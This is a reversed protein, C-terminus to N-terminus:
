TLSLLSAMLAALILAAGAISMVLERHILGSQLTRVQAGLALSARVLAFILGDIGREDSKRVGRGISCGLRGMALVAKYLGSELQKCAWAMALASRAVALVARYLINELQECVQAVALAPRVVLADM